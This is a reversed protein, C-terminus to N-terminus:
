DRQLTYFVYSYENGYRSYMCIEQEIMEIVQQALENDVYKSKMIYLNAQLPVYYNDTWCEAPLTVTSQCTYGLEEAQAVKHSVTDIQPYAEDWYAKPEPSPDDVIWSIESCIIAGQPKLLRNWDRLGEKFGAIYIAGEAFIYDFSGEEFSMEFMSMCLGQVRESLAFRVANANLEEIFDPNNDIAVIQANPLAKAVIFTHTGVGCGVDLIKIARDRPMSAIAQLTMEESGPGLRLMGEFAEYFYKEM